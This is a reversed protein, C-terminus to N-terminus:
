LAKPPRVVTFFLDDSGPKRVAGDDKLDPGVSRLVYGTTGKQYRLSKGDFSDGPVAALFKPALETLVNPYRNTNASRFRELAVATQALRLRALGGAEKSTLKGLSPLMMAVITYGKTQAETARATVLDDTKLRGPLPEQRAALVQNFSEEWFQRQEKLNAPAKDPAAESAGQVMNSATGQPLMQRLKDPTLTEITGLSVVREAVLARNFGNGAAEYDAARDFATQLKVLSEPPLAVRNISQELADIAIGNDAIRVLQSILAPESELTRASALALSVGSAANTGNRTDAQSLGYLAGLQAAQRVKSLHPMGADFGKTLDLPYRSGSCQAGREFFNLAPKNRELFTRLATRMGAPVPYGPLPLAAKGILPLSTSNRDADLIQLADFGQQFFTAANQDAPPEEYWRNLEEQTKPIGPVGSAFPSNTPASPATAIDASKRHDRWYNYGYYGGVGAGAAVLVYLLLTLIGSRKPAKKPPEIRRMPIAGYNPTRHRHAQPTFEPFQGLPTWETMGERWALDAHHFHGSALYDKIQDVPFPGQQEGNILLYIQM